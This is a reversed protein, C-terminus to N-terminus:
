GAGNERAPLSALPDISTVHLLSCWVADSPLDDAAAPLAVYLGSRLLLAMEPHCVEYQDGSSMKLRFPDFPRRSLREKIAAASMFRIRDQGLESTFL